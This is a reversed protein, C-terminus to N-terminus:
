LKYYQTRTAVKLIGGFHSSHEGMHINKELVIYITVGSKDKKLANYIPQIKISLKNQTNQLHLINNDLREINTIWFSM